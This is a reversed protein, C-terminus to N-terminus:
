ELDHRWQEADDVQPGSGIRRLEDRRSLCDRRPRRKADDLGHLHEMLNAGFAVGDDGGHENRGSLLNLGALLQHPQRSWINPDTRMALRPSIASRTWRVQRRSPSRVM